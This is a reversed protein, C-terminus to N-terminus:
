DWRFERTIMSSVRATGRLGHPRFPTPQCQSPAPSCNASQPSIQGIERIKVSYLGGDSKSNGPSHEGGFIKKQDADTYGRKMLVILSRVKLVILIRM